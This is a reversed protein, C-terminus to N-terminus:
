NEVESGLLSAVASTEDSDILLRKVLKGGLLHTAVIEDIDSFSAYTYWVAEPYILLCPGLGCRGLCGSKSVRFKGEGHLGLEVLKQKLHAFFPEGGTNACCQKGPQKQNTCIFIHKSYYM